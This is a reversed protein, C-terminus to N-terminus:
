GAKRRTRQRRAAAAGSGGASDEGTSGRTKGTRATSSEGTGDGAPSTKAPSTKAPSTKAPSDKAPERKRGGGRGSSKAPVGDASDEDGQTLSARPKAARITGASQRAAELSAKLADALSTPEPEGAAAVPQAVERGEIKADVLEQLAERYNDHYADPDFDVTMSDILSAAM